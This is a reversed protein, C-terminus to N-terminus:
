IQAFCVSIIDNVEPPLKGTQNYERGVEEMYGLGKKYLLQNYSCECYNEFEPSEETCGDMFGNYFDRENGNSKNTIWLSLGIIIATTVIATITITLITKKM